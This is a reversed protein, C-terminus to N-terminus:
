GFGAQGDVGAHGFQDYRSKKEETVLVDAAESAEKFKAEAEKNDPNRDPHYKMALKRYAKKIEDKSADRSVGLVDYYDRKSM